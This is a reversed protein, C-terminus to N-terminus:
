NCPRKGIVVREIKQYDKRIETLLHNKKLMDAVAKAQEYGTEFFITGHEALLQPFKPMLERYFDLGDNGGLLAICPEFERVEPQVKQWENQSIYPPNSVIVNFKKQFETVYSFFDAQIFNVFVDNLKANEKAIAIAEASKDIAWLEATPFQKALAIAICGSGTGIDLIVPAELQRDRIHEITADVLTETDQRPILVDRSVVFPLSYFETEGLIYQVPERQTRRQVFERYAMREDGTLIRDFQVYLEIRRCKLVDALLWEASLRPEPINKSTFFNVTWDLIQKVTWVEIM